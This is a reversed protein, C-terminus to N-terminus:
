VLEYINTILGIKNKRGKFPVYSVVPFVTSLEFVEQYIKCKTIKFNKLSLYM